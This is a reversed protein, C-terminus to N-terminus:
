SDAPYFYHIETRSSTKTVITDFPDPHHPQVFRPIATAALARSNPSSDLARYRVELGARELKRVDRHFGDHEPQLVGGPMTGM